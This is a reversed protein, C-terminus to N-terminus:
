SSSAELLRRNRDCTRPDTPMKNDAGSMAFDLVIGSMGFYVRFEGLFFSPPSAPLIRFIAPMITHKKSASEQLAM